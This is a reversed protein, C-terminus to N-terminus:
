LTSLMGGTKITVMTVLDRRMGRENEDSFFFFLLLLMYIIM